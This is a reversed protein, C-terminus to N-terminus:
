DMLVTSPNIRSTAIGRAETDRGAEVLSYLMFWLEEETFPIQLLTRNAKEQELLYM